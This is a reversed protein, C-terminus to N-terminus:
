VHAVSFVFDQFTGDLLFKGSDRQSRERGWGMRSLGSVMTLLFLAPGPLLLCFHSTPFLPYFALRTCDSRDHHTAQPLSLVTVKECYGERSTQITGRPHVYEDGLLPESIEQFHSLALSSSVGM